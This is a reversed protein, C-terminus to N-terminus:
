RERKRDRKCKFVNLNSEINSETGVKSHKKRMKLRERERESEGKQANAM